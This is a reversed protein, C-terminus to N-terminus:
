RNQEKSDNVSCRFELASRRSLPRLANDIYLYTATRGGLELEDNERDHRNM